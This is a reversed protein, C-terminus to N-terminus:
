ASRILSLHLTHALPSFGRHGSGELAGAHSENTLMEYLSQM